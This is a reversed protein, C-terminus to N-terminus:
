KLQARDPRASAARLCPDPAYKPLSLVAKAEVPLKVGVIEKAATEMADQAARKASQAVLMGDHQPLAVVNLAMLKELALLLITSETHMIAYGAPVKADKFLPEFGPHKALLARRVSEAKTGKPLRDLIGITAPRGNKARRGRKGGKGGNFCSALAQKIAKRHDRNNHDYGRLHGTLDYLDGEPPELKLMAYALRPGLNSFDLDAVPEGNIRIAARRESLLRMWFGGFMRGNQDFRVRQKPLITFYRALLRDKPDVVGQPHDDAIFDVDARALFANM